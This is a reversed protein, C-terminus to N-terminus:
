HINREDLAADIRKEAAARDESDYTTWCQWIRPQGPMEKRTRANFTRICGHGDSILEGVIDPVQELMANAQATTLGFAKAVERTDASFNDYVFLYADRLLQRSPKM